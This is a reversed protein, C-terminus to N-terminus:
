KNGVLSEKIELLLNGIWVMYENQNLNGEPTIYVLGFETPVQGLQVQNTNQEVEPTPEEEDEKIDEKEKVM